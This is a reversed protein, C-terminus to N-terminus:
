IITPHQKILIVNSTSNNQGFDPGLKKKQMFTTDPNKQLNKPTKAVPRIESATIIGKKEM